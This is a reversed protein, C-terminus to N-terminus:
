KELTIELYILLKVFDRTKIKKEGMSLILDRKLIKLENAKSIWGTAFKQKVCLKYNEIQM